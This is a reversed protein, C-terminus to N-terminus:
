DTSNPETAPSVSTFYFRQRPQREGPPVATGSPVQVVARFAAESAWRSIGVLAQHQEDWWPPDVEILGPQGTLHAGMERMGEALAEAHGSEPYHFVMFVFGSAPQGTM